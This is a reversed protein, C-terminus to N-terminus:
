KKFFERIADCVYEVEEINIENYLPLSLVEKVIRDTIPFNKDDLFPRQRYLPVPYYVGCGIGKSNLFRVLEDRYKTRITYLHFVGKKYKFNKPLKIDGVDRLHESYVEAMKARHNNYSELNKLKENLIAAQIGDLRSNYGLFEHEYRKKQGHNKLLNLYDAAKDSNTVIAGGDGFGNLNKTPYFSFVGVDGIGGVKKDKYIAGHAQCADELVWLNYKGAIELIKDMEAPMGYIHVPLIGATEDDILDEILNLDINYDEESIDCFVVEGGARLIAEATAFFTFPTTIVKKRNKSKSLLYSLSLILGDTGSNVTICHKVRCFRAFNEEFERVFRGGVFANDDIIKSFM